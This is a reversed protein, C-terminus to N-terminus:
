NDLSFINKLAIERAEAKKDEDEIEETMLSIIKYLMEIGLTLQWIDENMEKPYSGLGDEIVEGTDLHYKKTRDDQTFIVGGDKFTFKTKIDRSTDLKTKKDRRRKSM